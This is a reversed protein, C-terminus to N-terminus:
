PGWPNHNGLRLHDGQSVSRTTLPRCAPDSESGAFCASALAVAVFVGAIGVARKM